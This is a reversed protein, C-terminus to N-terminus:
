EFDRERAVDSFDKTVLSVMALVGILLINREM